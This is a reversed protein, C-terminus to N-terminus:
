KKGMKELTEVAKRIRDFDAHVYRLTTEVKSHGLVRMIDALGVLAEKLAGLRRPGALDV